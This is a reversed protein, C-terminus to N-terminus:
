PAVLIAAAPDVGDAWALTPLDASEFGALGLAARGALHASEISQGNAVATYFWAAYNIADSDDISDSMGIAFPM